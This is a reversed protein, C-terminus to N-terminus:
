SLKKGFTSNKTRTEGRDNGEVPKDHKVAGHSLKRHMAIENLNEKLALQQENVFDYSKNLEFNKNGEELLLAVAFFMTEQFLKGQQVKQLVTSVEAMEQLVELQVSMEGSTENNSAFALSRHEKRTETM